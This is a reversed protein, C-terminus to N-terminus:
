AERKPICSCQAGPSQTSSVAGFDAVSMKLYVSDKYIFWLNSNLVVVNEGSISKFSFKMVCYCYYKSIIDIHHNFYLATPVWGILMNPVWTGGGFSGLLSKILPVNKAPVKDLDQNRRHFCMSYRSLTGLEQTFIMRHFLSLTQLLVIPTLFIINNFFTKHIDLCFYTRLSSM